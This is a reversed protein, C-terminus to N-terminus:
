KPADLLSQYVTASFREAIGTTNPVMQIMMVLVMRTVPDIRYTTGYAGSWGFSGVSEM